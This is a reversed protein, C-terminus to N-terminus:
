SKRGILRVAIRLVKSSIKLGEAEAAEPNIEFRVKDKVRIFNIMGGNNIFDSSEGITLAQSGKLYELVAKSKYEAKDTIFILQCANLKNLDDTIKFLTISLKEGQKSIAAMSNFASAYIDKIGFVCINSTQNDNVPWEVFRLFNYIYAAKLKIELSENEAANALSNPFPGLLMLTFIAAKSYLLLFNQILKLRSQNAAKPTLSSKPLIM